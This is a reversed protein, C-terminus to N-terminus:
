LSEKKLLLKLLKQYYEIHEKKSTLKFSNSLYSIRIGRTESEYETQLEKLLKQAEKENINMVNCIEEITIGDDGVVFLLGELIALKNM